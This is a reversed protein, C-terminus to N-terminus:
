SKPAEAARQEKCLCHFSPPPLILLWAYTLPFFFYYFCTRLAVLGRTLNAQMRSWPSVIRALLWRPSKTKRSQGPETYQLSWDHCFSNNGVAERHLGNELRLHDQLGGAGEKPPLSCIIGLAQAEHGKIFSEYLLVLILSEPEPGQGSEHEWKDGQHSYTPLSTKLYVERKARGTMPAGTETPLIKAGPHVRADVAGCLFHTCPQLSQEPFQLALVAVGTHICGRHWPAMGASVGGGHSVRKNLWLILM